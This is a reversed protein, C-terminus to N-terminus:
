SVPRSRALAKIEEYASVTVKYGCVTKTKEPKPIGAIERIKNLREIYIGQLSRWREEYGKDGFIPHTIFVRETAWYYFESCIKVFEDKSKADSPDYGHGAMTKRTDSNLLEIFHDNQRGYRRAVYFCITTVQSSSIGASAAVDTLNEGSFVGSIIARNREPDNGLCDEPVMDASTIGVRSLHKYANINKAM